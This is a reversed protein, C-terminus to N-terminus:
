KVLQNLDFVPLLIALVIVLVIGGMMLILFPEFIGMSAAILTEIEREQTSAARELMEELNASAEGSAILYVTMPPFYGSKAITKHITEGERVRGAAKEVARRMALNAIVQASLRMGEIVSVGSATLISFSRAFRAANVTRAFKSILPVRLLFKHFRYRMAPRSLVIRGGVGVVIFFLLLYVGNQRFFTSIAILWRTLVPLEQGINEFVTVVQPVVYTLLAAVVLLAVVTLLVPYLLALMMKQRLQQRFETYDALREFVVDLHGAQEGADVTSQYLEPFISPFEALAVAMSHGELVKSRVAMMISKIRAKESQEAVAKLAEELVTGARILTALQRTVLALDTASIKRRFFARGSGKSERAAVGEVAVPSLGKERLMQRVQRPTDGELVGKQLRGSADLATYEFAGM